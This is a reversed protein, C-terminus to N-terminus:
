ELPMNQRLEESLLSVLKVLNNCFPNALQKPFRVMQIILSKTQQRKRCDKNNKREFICATSIYKSHSEASGGLSQKHRALFTLLFPKKKTRGVEKFM